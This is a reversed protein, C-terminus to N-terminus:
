SWFLATSTIGFGVAFLVLLAVRRYLAQGFRRFLHYGLKDGAVMAPLALLFLVPSAPTFFGAAGYGALALAASFLFFTMLLARSRAPDAQITMAYMIVPPGPIAFAGNMLGSFLGTVGTLAVGEQHRRPRYVSLAICVAIVALGIWLKFQQASIHGLLIVGAITGVLSCLVMPLMARIPYGGWYTRVTLLSIALTLSSSLVVAQTPAMLLSFVPVAALAFGFGTFARLVAAAVVVSWILVLQGPEISELGAILADIEEFNLVGKSYANLESRM